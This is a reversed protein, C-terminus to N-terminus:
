EKRKRYMGPSCGTKKKFLESFYHEDSFGTRFAVERVLLGTEDLMRKAMRLRSDLLYQYPATGYAAKFIRATQSVSRHIVAALIKITLPQDLNADIYNKLAAAEPSVLDEEAKGARLQSLIQHFVVACRRNKENSSLGSEQCIRLLQRFFDLCDAQPFRCQQDIHYLRALVGPLDGDINCWIKEWPDDEDPFYEVDDGRLLLYVDGKEVQCSVGNRIVTGRGAVVYEIVSISSNKRVIYYDPDPYTIGAFSIRFPLNKESEGIAIIQERM